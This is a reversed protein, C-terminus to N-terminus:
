EDFRISDFRISDFRISDREVVVSGRISRSDGVFASFEVTREVGRARARRGRALSVSSRAFSPVARSDCVCVCVCVCV